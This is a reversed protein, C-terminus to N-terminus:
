KFLRDTCAKLDHKVRQADITLFEGHDYLTKGNAITMIVDGAQASYTILSPYDHIPQLHAQDLNIVALDAKKGVALSGSDERGQAAAGNCTAMSLVDQPTVITPDHNVGCHVIAVLHMEELMNQNNNSASSDTGITVRVQRELMSRIPMVGSGLKLNSSPNHIATVGKERMLEIDNEEVMVCHAAHTPNEFVGLSNFWAAPTMGGNRRKCEEHEKRTESLHLHMRAGKEQCIQAYESVPRDTSTYEAHIAFDVLIRGGAQGNYEDYFKASEAIVERYKRSSEETVFMIPLSLNAKMGSGVVNQVYDKPNHYMDTFSVVGSSLMEMMALRSGVSLDPQTMRAEIPFMAENLWRDLPLNSGLGRLISMPSHTHMNYLGPMILCDTLDKVADFDDQPYESGIYCINEDDIGLYGNIVPTWLNEQTLIVANKFLTKM